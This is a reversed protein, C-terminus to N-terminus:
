GTCGDVGQVALIGTSAALAEQEQMARPHPIGALSQPHTVLALTALQHREIGQQAALPAFVKDQDDAIDGFQAVHAIHNGQVGVGLQRAIGGPLEDGGQLM